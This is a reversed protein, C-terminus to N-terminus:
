PHRADVEVGRDDLDVRALGDRKRFVQSDGAFSMAPTRPSNGLTVKEDIVEVAGIVGKQVKQYVRHARQM